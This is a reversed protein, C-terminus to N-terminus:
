RDPYGKLIIELLIWKAPRPMQTVVGYEGIVEIGSDSRQFGFAVTPSRGQVRVNAPGESRDLVLRENPVSNQFIDRYPQTPRSPARPM